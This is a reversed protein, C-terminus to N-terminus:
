GKRKELEKTTNPWNPDGALKTVAQGMESTPSGVVFTASILVHVMLDQNEDTAGHERWSDAAARNQYVFFEHGPFLAVKMPTITRPDDADHVVSDPWTKLFFARLRDWEPLAEACVQIDHGGIEM